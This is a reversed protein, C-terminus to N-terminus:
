RTNGIDVLEVDVKNFQLIINETAALDNTESESYFSFYLEDTITDINNIKDLKTITISPINIIGNAYDISGINATQIKKFGSDYYYVNLRTGDDEIFCNSINNYTFESSRAYLIRTSFSFDIQTKLNLLPNIRKELSITTFNSIISKESYDINRLFQSYRFDRNFGDLYLTEYDFVSNRILEKLQNLTYSTTLKNYTVKTSINIFIYDPERIIPTIPIVNYKKLLNKINTIDLETLYLDSKPKVAVIVKGYLPPNLTEGGYTIVDEINLFYKKIISNYDNNNVARNQSTRFLPANLKISNVSEAASGGISKNIIRLKVDANPISNELKYSLIGNADAGRSVIYEIIVPSNIEPKKGLIGDGFRINVLGNENEQIYYIRSDSKVDLINNFYQYQYYETSNDDNILIKLKSIDVNLNPLTIGNDFTQQIISTTVLFKKGEYIQINDSIYLNNNAPIVINDYSFFLFTSNELSSSFTPNDIIYSSPYTTKPIIEIQITATASTISSPTYGLSKAREVVSSRKVATALFAENAVQNLYFANYHSNVSLTKLIVSLASGDFVYDTYEIQQQLFQQLGQKLSSYDPSVIPLSKRLEKESSM